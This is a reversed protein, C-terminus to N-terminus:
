AILTDAMMERPDVIRGTVAAAAVTLPSGLYAESSAPGIRGVANTAATSISVEGEGIPGSIGGACPGCGPPLMVAGAEMFQETLGAAALRRAVEVTGPVIFFRVGPAVQRGRMIAAAAAFDEYMGSGCSGIFAHDIRKGEAEAVTVAREPGGPLALQPGLSGLDLSVRSEFSADPDSTVVEGDGLPRATPSLAPFLINTVGIETLTNCLAVREALPMVRVAEGAFEVVRSDYHVGLGGTVLDHALRFGLDRPHVGAAWTGHLEIRLTPPVVTWLTGTALVAVVEPGARWALAGIAGFNSCHMDYAFLFMGPRVLDQEM